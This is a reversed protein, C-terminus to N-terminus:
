DLEGKIEKEQLLIKHVVIGVFQPDIEHKLNRM